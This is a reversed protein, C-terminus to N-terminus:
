ICIHITSMFSDSFTIFINMVGGLYGREWKYDKEKGVEEPDLSLDAKTQCKLNTRTKQFKFHMSM